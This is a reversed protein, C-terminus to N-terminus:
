ASPRRTRLLAIVAVVAAVAAIVVAIISLADNAPPDTPQGASDSAPTSPSTAGSLQLTPAPHDPEANGVAIQDWAVDKGDSYRQLTPFVLKDRRPLPGASLNFIQFQGPKIATATSDARWDVSRVYSDVEGDDTKIPEALKKTTIRATWGPV